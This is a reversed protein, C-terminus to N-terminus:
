TGILSLKLGKSKLLNFAHDREFDSVFGVVEGDLNFRNGGTAISRIYQNKRTHFLLLSRINKRGYEDGFKEFLPKDIGIQLPLKHNWVDYTDTLLKILRAKKSTASEVKPTKPKKRAKRKTTKKKKAKPKVEKTPTIKEKKPILAKKKLTLTAMIEVESNQTVLTSNCGKEKALEKQTKFSLFFM